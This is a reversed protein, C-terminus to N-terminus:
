RATAHVYEYLLEQEPRRYTDMVEDAHARGAAIIEPDNLLDGLEDFVLSFIM